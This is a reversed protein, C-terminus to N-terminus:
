ARRAAIAEREIGALAGEIAAGDGTDDRAARQLRRGWDQLNPSGQFFTSHIRRYRSEKSWEAAITVGLARLRERLRERAAGERVGRLAAEIQDLWGPQGAGGSVFFVKVWRWYEDFPQSAANSPDNGYAARFEDKWSDVLRNHDTM